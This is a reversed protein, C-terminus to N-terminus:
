GLQDESGVGIRRWEDSIPGDLDASASVGSDSRPAPTGPYRVLSKTQYPAKSREERRALEEDYLRQREENERVSEEFSRQQAETRKPQEVAPPKPPQYARHQALAKSVAILDQIATSAGVPLTPLPANTVLLDTGSVRVHGDLHVARYDVPSILKTCDLWDRLGRSGRRNVSSLQADVAAIAQIVPILPACAEILEEEVAAAIQTRYIAIAAELQTRLEPITKDIEQAEANLYDRAALRREQVRRAAELETLAKDAAKNAKAVEAPTVADAAALAEHKVADAALERSASELEAIHLASAAIANSNAVATRDANARADLATKIDDLVTRLEDPLEKTAEYIKM